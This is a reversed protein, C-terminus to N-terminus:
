EAVPLLPSKERSKLDRIRNQIKNRDRKQAKSLMEELQTLNLPKLRVKGTRTRMPDATKKKKM